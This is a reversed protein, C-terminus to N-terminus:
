DHSDQGYHKNIIKSHENNVNDKQERTPDLISRMEAISDQLIKTFKARPMLLLEDFSYDSLGRKM